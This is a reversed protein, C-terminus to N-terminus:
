KEPAKVQNELLTSEFLLGTIKMNQPNNNDVYITITVAPDKEFVGVYLLTDVGSRLGKEWLLLKMGGLKGIKSITAERAAPFQEVSFKRQMQADFDKTFKAHDGENFGVFMAGVMTDQRDLLAGNSAFVQMPSLLLFIAILSLLFKKM